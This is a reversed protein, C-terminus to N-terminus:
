RNAVREAIDGAVPVKWWEGAYAKFLCILWLIVGALWTIQALWMMLRFAGASVFVALFGLIWFGVGLAWLGGLAVISQMAHFRVYRNDREVLFFLVGTVWGILYSLMAAVKPDLGTSTSGYDVRAPLPPPPPHPEAM